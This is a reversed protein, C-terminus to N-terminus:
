RRARAESPRSSVNKMRSSGFIARYTFYAFIAGSVDLIVDALSGNRGPTFNQLWEDAVAFLACLTLAFAPRKRLPGLVLMAFAAAPILFHGFKRAMNHIREIDTSSATPRMQRVLRDVIALTNRHALLVSAFAALVGLFIAFTLTSVIRNELSQLQERSAM